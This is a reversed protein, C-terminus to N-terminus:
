QRADKEEQCKIEECNNMDDDIDAM